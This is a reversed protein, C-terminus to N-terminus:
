AKFRSEIIKIAENTMEEITGNANILYVNPVINVLERYKQTAVEMTKKNEYKTIESGRSYLRKLAIDVDVNLILHFDPKAIRLDNHLIEQVLLGDLQGYVLGSTTYRDTMIIDYKNKYENFEYTTWDVRDASFLMQLAAPNMDIEKKIVKEIVCGIETNYRPFHTHIISKNKSEFYKKLENILTSKGSADIGDCNFFLM